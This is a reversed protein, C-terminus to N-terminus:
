NPILNINPYFSFPCTLNFNVKGAPSVSRSKSLDKTSGAPSIAMPLKSSIKRRSTDGALPTDPVAPTSSRTLRSARSFVGHM